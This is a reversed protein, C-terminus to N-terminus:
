SQQHILYNKICSWAEGSAFETMNWQAYSIDYLWQTIDPMVPNEIQEIKHGSVDYTVSMPDKTIVPIGNMVCDIAGNSAAAVACWCNSFYNDIRDTKDIPLIVCRDVMKPLYKQHPHPKYIIKRDTYKRIKKLMLNSWDLFSLGGMRINSTGLGEENQGIVLIHNGDKRWEPMEMGLKEWRDSPSNKTYSLGPRKIANINLSYYSKHSPVKKSHSIFGADLIIRPRKFLRVGARFNQIKGRMEGSKKKLGIFKQLKGTGRESFHQDCVQFSVDCNNLNMLDRVSTIDIAEDGRIEVGEKFLRFFAQADAKPKTYCIGVKM